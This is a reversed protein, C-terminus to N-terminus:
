STVSSLLEVALDFFPFKGLLDFAMLHLSNDGGPILRPIVVLATGHHNSFSWHIRCLYQPPLLSLRPHSSGTFM